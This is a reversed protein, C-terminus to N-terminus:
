QRNGDMEGAEVVNLWFDAALGDQYDRLGQRMVMSPLSRVWYVSSFFLLAEFQTAIKELWSLYM